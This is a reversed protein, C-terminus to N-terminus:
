AIKSVKTHPNSARKSPRLKRMQREHRGKEIADAESVDAKSEEVDEDAEVEGSLDLRSPVLSVRKLLPLSPRMLLPLAGFKHAELFNM